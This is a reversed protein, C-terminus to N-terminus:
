RRTHIHDMAQTLMSDINDESSSLVLHDEHLPEMGAKLQQYVTYDADSTTRPVQLRERILAEGAIIEIYIIRLGAAAAADEFMRRWVARGFTADLVVADGRAIAEEMAALMAEYVRMKEEDSYTRAAFMRKRLEDSSVYRAQIATALRTAFYSKGSGPLGFVIVILPRGGGGNM